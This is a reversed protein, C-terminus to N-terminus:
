RAGAHVRQEWGRRAAAPGLALCLVGLGLWALAVVGGMALVPLAGARAFLRAAAVVTTGLLGACLFFLAALAHRLAPSALLLRIM